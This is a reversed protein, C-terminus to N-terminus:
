EAAACRRLGARDRAAAGRPREAARRRLDRPVARSAPAARARPVLERTDLDLAYALAPSWCAVPSRTSASGRSWCASGADDARRAREGERDRADLESAAKAHTGQPRLTGGAIRALAAEDRLYIQSAVRPDAFGAGANLRRLLAAEAHLRVEAIIAGLGEIM